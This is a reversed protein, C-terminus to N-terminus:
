ATDKRQSAREGIMKRWWCELGVGIGQKVGGGGPLSGQHALKRRQCCHYVAQRQGVSCKARM